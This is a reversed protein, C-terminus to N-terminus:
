GDWPPLPMPWPLPAQERLRQCERDVDEIPLDAIRIHEERSALCYTEVHREISVRHDKCGLSRGCVACTSGTPVGCICCPVCSCIRDRPDAHASAAGCRRCPDGFPLASM